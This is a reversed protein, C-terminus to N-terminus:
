TFYRIHLFNSRSSISCVDPSPRPRPRPRPRSQPRRQRRRRNDLHHQPFFSISPLFLPSHTSSYQSSLALLIAPPAPHLWREALPGRALPRHRHRHRHASPSALQTAHRPTSNVPAACVPAFWCILRPLAAREGLSSVAKLALRMGNRVRGGIV